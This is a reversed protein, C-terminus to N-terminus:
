KADYTFDESTADALFSKGMELTAICIKGELDQLSSRLFTKPIPIYSVEARDLSMLADSLVAACPADGELVMIDKDQAGSIEDPNGSAIVLEYAQRLDGLDQKIFDQAELMSSLGKRGDVTDLAELVCLKGTPCLLKRLTPGTSLSSIASSSDSLIIIDFTRDRFGQSEFTEQLNLVEYAVKEGHRSLQSEKVNQLDREDSCTFTYKLIESAM